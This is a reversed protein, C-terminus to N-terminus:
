SKDTQNIIKWNKKEIGNRCHKNYDSIAKFFQIWLQLASNKTECTVTPERPHLFDFYGLLQYSKEKM